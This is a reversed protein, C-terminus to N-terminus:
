AADAATESEVAADIREGCFPCCNVVIGNKQFEGSKITVFSRSPQRTEHNSWNVHNVGRGFSKQLTECPEVFRGDRVACKRHTM